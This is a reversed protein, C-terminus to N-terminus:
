ETVNMDSFGCLCEWGGGAVSSSCLRVCVWVNGCRRSVWFNLICLNMRQLFQLCMQIKVLLNILM